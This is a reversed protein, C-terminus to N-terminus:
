VSADAPMIFTCPQPSDCSPTANKLNMGRTDRARMPRPLATSCPLVSTADDITNYYLYLQPMRGRLRAALICTHTSSQKHTSESLTAQETVPLWCVLINRQGLVSSVSSKTCGKRGVFHALNRLTNLSRSTHLCRLSPIDSWLRRWKSKRVIKVASVIQKCESAHKSISIILHLTTCACSM